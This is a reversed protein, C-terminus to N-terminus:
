IKINKFVADIEAQSAEGKSGFEKKQGQTPTYGGAGANNEGQVIGTIDTETEAILTNFEEDNDFKMRDFQKLLTTKIHDPVDKILNSYQEKRTTAVKEGTIAALQRELAESKEAQQKMFVKAWAPTDKDDDEVTTTTSKDADAKAKDADAKDKAAKGAQYDDYKKQDEFSWHTNREALKADIEEDTSEETLLTSTKDAIAEVSKKSLSVGPYNARLRTAIRIKLSM